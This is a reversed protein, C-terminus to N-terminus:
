FAPARLRLGVFGREPSDGPTLVCTKYEFGKAVLRRALEPRHIINRIGAAECWERFASYLEAAKIRFEPSIECGEDLFQQVWDYDSFYKATCEKVYESRQIGTRYYEVAGDIAWALIIGAEEQFVRPLTVDPTSIPHWDRVHIRRQLERGVSRTSPPENGILLLKFEPTFEFLHKGKYSATIDEGGSVAKIRTLNLTGTVEPVQVFRARNLRALEENHAAFRTEVFASDTATQAYDGMAYALANAVVSKGDGGQGLWLGVVPHRTEGTLCYGAFTQIYRQEDESTFWDPLTSKWRSPAEHWYPAVRTVRTILHGPHHNLREKTRLDYTGEPTNLLHKDPDWDNHRISLEPRDRLSREVGDIISRDRYDDILFADILHRVHHEAQPEWLVGNHYYWWGKDRDYRLVEAHRELLRDAIVGHSPRGKTKKKEFGKARASNIWEEIVDHAKPWEYSEGAFECAVRKARQVRQHIAENPWGSSVMLAVAAVCTEHTDGGGGVGKWTMDNLRSIANDREKCFLRIEDSTCWSVDPLENYSVDLLSKGIWHYPEGTEPHLSPPVVSQKGAALVDIAPRKSGGSYDHILESKVDTSKAFFTVGKKGRKQPSEAGIASGVAAFLPHDDLDVDYAIAYTGDERRM